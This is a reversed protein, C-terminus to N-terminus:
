AIPTLFVVQCFIKTNKAISFDNEDPWYFPLLSNEIIGLNRTSLINSFTDDKLANCSKYEVTMRIDPKSGNVLPGTAMFSDMIPGAKSDGDQKMSYGSSVYAYDQIDIDIEDTRHKNAPDTIAHLAALAPRVYCVHAWERNDQESNMQPTNWAQTYKAHISSAYLAHQESSNILRFKKAKESAEDISSKLLDPVLVIGQLAGGSEISYSKIAGNTTSSANDKARAVPFRELPVSLLDFLTYRKNSAIRLSIDAM